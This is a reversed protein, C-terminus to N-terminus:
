LVNNHVFVFFGNQNLTSVGIKRAYLVARKSFPGQNWNHTNVVLTERRLPAQEMAAVSVCYEYMFYVTQGSPLLIETFNDQLPFEFAVDRDQLWRLIFVLGDLRLNTTQPRYCRRTWYLQQVRPRNRLDLLKEVGSEARYRLTPTPLIDVKVLSKHRRMQAALNQLASVSPALSDISQEIGFISNLERPFLVVRVQPTDGRTDLFEATHRAFRDVIDRNERHLLGRNKELLTVLKQNNALVAGEFRRWLRARAGSEAHSDDTPGYARFTSLNSRLLPTVAKALKEFTSYRKSFRRRLENQRAAKWARLMNETTDDRQDDIKRHCPLCLALLNEPSADGDTADPVIHALDALHTDRDFLYVECSPNM